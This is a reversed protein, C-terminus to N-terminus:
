QARTWEVTRGLLSFGIYGRVQLINKDKLTMICSYTKGNEPDYITGDEWEKDGEYEFDQLIVLGIIPRSKLKSDPNNKDLKPKGDRNPEKLWVIKGCYKNGCKYINIKGSKETNYWDGLIADGEAKQQTVGSASIFFFLLVSFVYSTMRM